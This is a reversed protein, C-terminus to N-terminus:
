RYAAYYITETDVNIDTDAGIIFGDAYTTTGPLHSIGNTAIFAFTPTGTTKIGKGDGMDETWELKAPTDAQFLVVKRPKFGIPVNLTAGTGAITGTVM